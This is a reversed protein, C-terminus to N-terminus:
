SVPLGKGGKLRRSTQCNSRSSSCNVCRILRSRSLVFGSLASSSERLASRVATRPSIFFCPARGLQMEFAHVSVVSSMRNRKASDDILFM